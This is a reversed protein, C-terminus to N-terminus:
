TLEVIKNRIFDQFNKAVVNITMNSPDVEVVSWDCVKFGANFGQFDDGFLLIGELGDPVEGYIDEPAVLGDYLMYATAGLEGFGIEVLFSTYDQPLSVGSSLAPVRGIPLLDLKDFPTGTGKLSLLDDYFGM